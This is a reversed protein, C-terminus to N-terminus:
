EEPLVAPVDDLARKTEVAQLRSSNGLQPRAALARNEDDSPAM